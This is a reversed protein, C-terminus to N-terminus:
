DTPRKKEKKPAHNIGLAQRLPEREWEAKLAAKSYLMARRVGEYCHVKVIEYQEPSLLRQREAFHATHEWLHLMGKRSAYERVAKINPFERQPM